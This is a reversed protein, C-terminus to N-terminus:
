FTITTQLALGKAYNYLGAENMDGKEPIPIDTFELAYGDLSRTQLQPIDDVTAEREIKVVETVTQQPATVTIPQNQGEMRQHHEELNIRPVPSALEGKVMAEDLQKQNPLKRGLKDLSASVEKLRDMFDHSKYYVLKHALIPPLNELIVLERDQGLGTIEQPLLLARRQDSINESNHRKSFLEKGKSESVGKVTQYGLWESIDKATHTESAKPPFVIQLAHNTTFTQAAEKGYVDFLQSPSQIIPMMRLGYGAIYSIGKSLIGIKGIATFEDM